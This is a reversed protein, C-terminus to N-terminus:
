GEYDDVEVTENANLREFIEFNGESYLIKYDPDDRLVMGLKCNEYLIIHTVGYQEFM